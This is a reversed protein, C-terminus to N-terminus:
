TQTMAVKILRAEEEPTRTPPEKGKSLILFDVIMGKELGYCKRDEKTLVLVFCGGYTKIIKRM